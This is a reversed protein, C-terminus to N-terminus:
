RGANDVEPLVLGGLLTAIAALDRFNDGIMDSIPIDVAFQERVFKVLRMTSLSTLIGLELLPTHADLTVQAGHLIDQEIFKRITEQVDQHKM